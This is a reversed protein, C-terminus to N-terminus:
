RRSYGSDTEDRIEREQPEHLALGVHAKTCGSEPKVIVCVLTHLRAYALKGRVYFLCVTGYLVTRDNFGHWLGPCLPQDIGNAYVTRAFRLKLLFRM